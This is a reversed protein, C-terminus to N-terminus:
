ARSAITRALVAPHWIPQAGLVVSASTPMAGRVRELRDGAGFYCVRQGARAADQEFETVVAALRSEACVPAGAVVRVGARAVYGVFADGARSYWHDIGRNLTQYVTANWGHALVLARAHAVEM